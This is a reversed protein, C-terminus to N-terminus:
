LSSSADPHHGLDFLIALDDHIVAFRLLSTRMSTWESICTRCHECHPSTWYGLKLYLIIAITKEKFNPQQVLGCKRNGFM